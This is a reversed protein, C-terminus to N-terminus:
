FIIFSLPIRAFVLVWFQSCFSVLPKDFFDNCEETIVPIACFHRTAISCIIWLIVAIRQDVMSMGFEPPFEFSFVKHFPLPEFDSGELYLPILM